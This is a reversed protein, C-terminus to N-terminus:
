TMPSLRVRVRASRRGSLTTTARFRFPFRARPAMTKLITSIATLLRPPQNLIPPLALTLRARVLTKTLSSRATLRGVGPNEFRVRSSPPRSINTASRSRLLYTNTQSESSYLFFCFVKMYEPILTLRTIEEGRCAQDCCHNVWANQFPGFVGVDMPQLKHTTHPPLRLLIVRAAFAAEIMEDTEHSAHGDM